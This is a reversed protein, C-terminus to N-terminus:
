GVSNEVAAATQIDTQLAQELLRLLDRQVTTTLPPLLIVHILGPQKRFARRGWCQGSDTLVPIVPLRTGAAVAAVGPQLPLLTGPVARTGEPFIVIQRREAAAAAADRMLRRMARVGANRDVAIMGGLRTLRGFLPIRQLEQKMIYTPRPLLALWLLTDFTSEHHSAIVAAGEPL